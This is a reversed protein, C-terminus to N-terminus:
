VGPSLACGDRLGDAKGSPGALVGISWSVTPKSANRSYQAHWRLHLCARSFGQAKTGYCGLSKFGKLKPRWWGFCGGYGKIGLLRRPRLELAQIGLRGFGEVGLDVVIGLVRKLSLRGNQGIRSTRSRSRLAPVSSTEAGEGTCM